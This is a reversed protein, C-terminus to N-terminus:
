NVAFPSGRRRQIEM